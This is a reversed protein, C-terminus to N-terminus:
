LYDGANSGPSLETRSGLGDSLVEVFLALFDNRGDRLQQVYAHQDTSGKNGYVAIGQHVTKGDRDLKKGLSERVLQQLYRSLLLLRDSYPLVVMSRDGRGNGTRHLVGAVVAAPNAEWRSERTWRDMDAAGALFGDVDIGALAAPVLGVASLV